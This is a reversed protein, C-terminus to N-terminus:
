KMLIMKKTSNFHEGTIAQAEISYFYTGSSLSNASFELHHSGANFDGSAIQDVEQGLMNFLKISVNSEVPLSFSITTSPNFPNPFNQTLVFSSPRESVQEVHVTSEVSRFVRQATGAFLRDNSNIALSYVYQGTLGISEWTDGNNTSRFVGNGATAAFIDWESNIVMSLLFASLLGTAEWTDGNDTSRFVGEGYTGAFLHGSSNIVLSRIDTTTLGSNIQMWSVGDDTSRYVGFDTGAFLHGSFNAALDYVFEAGSLTNLQTWNNGNDTSKMIAGNDYRTGAYIYGDPKILISYVPYSDPIFWVGFWNQGKDTSKVIGSWNEMSWDETGAFIDGSTSIALAPISSGKWGAPQGLSIWDDGDNTTRFVGGESTGTLLKQSSDVTFSTIYGGDPSNTEEWFEQIPQANLPNITTM